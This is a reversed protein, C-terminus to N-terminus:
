RCRHARELAEMAASVRADIDTIGKGQNIVISRANPAVANWVPIGIRDLGTLRALRTIGHQRLLPEVRRWTEEPPIARDSYSSSLGATSAPNDEGTEPRAAPM